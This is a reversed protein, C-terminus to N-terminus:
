YKSYNYVWIDNLYRDADVLGGYVFLKDDILVTTSLWRGDPETGKANIRKMPPNNPFSISPPKGNLFNAIEMAGEPLPVRSIEDGSLEFVTNPASVSQPVNIRNILPPIKPSPVDVPADNTTAADSKGEPDARVAATTWEVNIVLLFLSLIIRFFVM